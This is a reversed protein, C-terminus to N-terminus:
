YDDCYRDGFIGLQHRVNRKREACWRERYKKIFKRPAHHVNSSSSLWEVQKNEQFNTYNILFNIFYYKKFFETFDLNLFM